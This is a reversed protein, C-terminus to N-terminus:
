LTRVVRFGLRANTTDADAALRWASRTQAPASAWSGGRVVRTRCGPNVWAAGDVPARRYGDHWCDAVWESVNGALDHLGFENPDFTGVRAPGWHGDGYGHFANRWERGSPSRDKGGTFNGAGPPPTGSGWPFRSESGARMAYEWEAESPLRYAEGSQESLWAAYAEADRASVHLVPMADDAPAGTYGHRWDVGSRKVLNGGREDYVTSFGRREARTEHGTADIFRRFQGVTVETRGMAFGRDFRVYRQPREADSAGEEGPAAGMRFAGHPVVVMLPGRGGGELSDTFQQGPRYLGYHAALDIRSRLETAAPAGPEAIRLLAALARRADALGDRRSLAALGEDRLRRVQAARELAIRRRADPVTDLAPRIPAALDLWRDATGFDSKAAALEARRIMASEAAAIGQRARASEPDLELARRFTALAGDGSEGLDGDRLQAEGARNLAAVEDSRDLEGLYARIDERAPDIARAVAGIEHARHLADFDIDPRALAARGAELLAAVAGEFGREVQADDPAQERLALYLPIADRDGGYLRGEALAAEAEARVEDRAEQPVQVDPPRWNPVPQDEGVVVRPGQAAPAARAPDDGQDACAGLLALTCIVALAPFRPHM